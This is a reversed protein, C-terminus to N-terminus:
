SWKADRPSKLRKKQQVADRNRASLRMAKRRRAVICGVPDPPLKRPELPRPLAAEGTSALATAPSPAADKGSELEEESSLAVPAAPESGLFPM